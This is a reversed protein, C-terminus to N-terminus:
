QITTRGTIGDVAITKQQDGLSLVITKDSDSSHGDPYFTIEGGAPATTIKIGEYTGDTDFDKEYWTKDLPNVVIGYAGLPPDLGLYTGPDTQYQKDFIRFWNGAVEAEVGFPKQYIVALSAAYQLAAVGEETAQNLKRELIDAHIRPGSIMAVIGIILAVILLEILTFGETDRFLILHNTAVFFHKNVRNPCYKMM